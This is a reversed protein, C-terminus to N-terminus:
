IKVDSVEVPKQLTLDGARPPVRTEGGVVGPTNEQTNEASDTREHDHLVYLFIFSTWGLVSLSLTHSRILVLTTNRPLKVSKVRQGPSRLCPLRYFPERLPFDKTLKGIVYESRSLTLTSLHGPQHLLDPSFGDRKSRPNLLLFHLLTQNGKEPPVRARYVNSLPFSTPVVKPFADETAGEVVFILLAVFKRPLVEAWCTM